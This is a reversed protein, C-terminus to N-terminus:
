LDSLVKYPDSIEVILTAKWEGCSPVLPQL